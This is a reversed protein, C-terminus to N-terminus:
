VLFEDTFEDSFDSCPVRFVATAGMPWRLPGGYVDPNRLSYHPQQLQPVPDMTYEPLLNNM